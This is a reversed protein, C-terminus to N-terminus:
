APGEIVCGALKVGYVGMGVGQGDMLEKSFPGPLCGFPKVGFVM